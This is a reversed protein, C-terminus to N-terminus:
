KLAEYRTKNHGRQQLAILDNRFALQDRCFTDKSTNNHTSQVPQLYFMPEVKEMPTTFMDVRTIGDMNYIQGRFAPAVDPDIYYRVDGPTIDSYGTYPRNYIEPVLDPNYVNDMYVSSDAPATDLGFRQTRPMDFLRADRTTKTDVGIGSNCQTFDIATKYAQPNLIGKQLQAFPAACVTNNCSAFAGSGRTSGLKQNPSDCVRNAYACTPRGNM